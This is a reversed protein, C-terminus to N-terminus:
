DLLDQRELLKASLPEPDPDGISIMHLRSRADAADPIFSLYYDIVDEDVPMSTVYIMELTPRRLLLLMCLLREEYHEIGVIKRLEDSPFTISPLVLITGTTLDSVGRRGLREALGRQLRDFTSSGRIQNPM